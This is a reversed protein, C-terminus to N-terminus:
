AVSIATTRTTAARGFVDGQRAGRVVGGVSDVAVADGSPVIQAAASVRGPSFCAQEKSFRADRSAELERERRVVLLGTSQRECRSQEKLFATVGAGVPRTV